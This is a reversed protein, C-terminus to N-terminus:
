EEESALHRRLIIFAIVLLCMIGAVLNICHFTLIGDVIVKGEIISSVGMAINVLAILVFAIILKRPNENLSVYAENWTCYIVQASVSLCVGVMMVVFNDAPIRIEMVTTLGYLVMYFLLIFFSLKYGKGRILAQREDYECKIKGNTKTLKLIVLAILIGLALGTVLGLTRGVNM